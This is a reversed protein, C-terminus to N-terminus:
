WIRVRFYTEDLGAPPVLDIEVPGDAVGGRFTQVWSWEGGLGVASELRYERGAVTQVVLTILAEDAVTAELWLRSAPDRPGTGARYEELNTWGDGDADLGADGADRPDFQNASEWADPMGDGDSDAPADFAYGPSPAAALWQAPDSGPTGATRKHLALGNGDARPWPARSGFSFESVMAWVPAGGALSPATPKELALRGSRNSLRGVWPGLIPVGEPVRYTSRFAELLNADAPDFGVVLTPGVPASFSAPFLFDVDGSIRWPGFETPELVVERTSSGPVPAPRILELYELGAVDGIPEYMVELIEPKLSVSGTGNVAGRTRELSTGWWAQGDPLRAWSWGSDQGPVRLADVVRGPGGEPFYSLFVREGARSIGFGTGGPVNFGTQEDFVARGGAPITTAAPIAWRKLNSADDSLFWGPGLTVAAAGPNVLEIWDNSKEGAAADTHSVVENLLV